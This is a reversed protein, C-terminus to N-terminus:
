LYNKEGAMIQDCLSSRHDTIILSSHIDTNGPRAAFCFGVDELLPLMRVALPVGIALGDHDYM